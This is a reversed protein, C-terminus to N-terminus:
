ARKEETSETDKTTFEVPTLVFVPIERGGTRARYAAYGPYIRIAEQYLAEREAGHAERVAYARARGDRTLTAEPHARLNHAWAPHHKQGFNSAVLLYGDGHPLALLPASRPRGSKAGTTTVLVTPVGALLGSLTTRGGSLRLAARDAPPALRAFLWAGLPSGAFAAVARQVLHAM